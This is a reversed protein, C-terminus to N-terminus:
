VPLFHEPRLDSGAPRIYGEGPTVHNLDCPQPQTNTVSQYKGVQIFLDFLYAHVFIISGGPKLWKYFQQICDIPEKVFYMVHSVLVIDVPDKPGIWEPVTDNM